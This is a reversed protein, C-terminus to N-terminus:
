LISDHSCIRGSVFLNWNLKWKMVNSRISMFNVCNCIWKSHTVSVQTCLHPNKLFLALYTQYKLINNNTVHRVFNFIKQMSIVLWFHDLNVKPTSHLQFCTVVFLYPKTNTSDLQSVLSFCDFIKSFSTIMKIFYPIM